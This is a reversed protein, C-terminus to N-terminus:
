CPKEATDYPDSIQRGDAALLFFEPEVGTKVRLGHSAAEAVTYELVNRPAQAVLAGEM